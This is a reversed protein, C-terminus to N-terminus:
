YLSEIAEKESTIKVESNEPITEIEGDLQVALKATTRFGYSSYEPADSNGFLASRMLDFALRIKGRYPFAILDFKGDRISTSENLRIVKAMGNVNAFIISSYKERKGDRKVVFPKFDRFARWAIVLEKGPSLTHKNLEIGVEPTIGLGIYSHAYRDVGKSRMRLLHLTKPEKDILKILPTDGRTTRKHDNANGAGIVAVVPRRSKSASKAAMVGDVLENYGGDGSVSILLPRKHKLTFDYGYTRAHGQHDTPHLHVVIGRKKAAEKFKTAKLKADNTSNPNYIAAIYDYASM